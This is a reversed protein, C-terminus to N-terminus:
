RDGIQGALYGALVAGICLLVSMVINGGATLSYRMAEAVPAPCDPPSPLLTALAAEVEAQRARVYEAVATAGTM